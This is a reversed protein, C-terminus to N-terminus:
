IGGTGIGETDLALVPLCQGAKKDIESIKITKLVGLVMAISVLNAIPESRRHEFKKASSRRM